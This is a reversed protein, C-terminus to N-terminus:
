IITAGALVPSTTGDGALILGLNTTKGTAPDLAFLYTGSVTNITAGAVLLMTGAKDAPAPAIDFGTINNVDVGLAGVETLVGANPNTITYLKDATSDIAYLTTTTAGDVNNSYALGTVNPNGPSLATDPTVEGTDPHVRMNRNADGNTVIRLRDVVPNFDVGFATDTADITIDNAATGVRTAPFGTATVDDSVKYVRAITNDANVTVVYGDGTKPRVDTGVVKEGTGLGSIPIAPDFLANEPNSSAFAYVSPNATVGVVLEDVLQGRVAGAPFDSTHVNVYYREPDAFVADYQAKTIEM